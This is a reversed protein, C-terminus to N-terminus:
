QKILISVLRMPVTLLYSDVASFLGWLFVHNLRKSTGLFFSTHLSEFISEGLAPKLREDSKITYSFM